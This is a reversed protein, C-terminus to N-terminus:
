KKRALFAAFASRAEDSQLLDRFHSSEAEIQKMVSDLHGRMLGRTVAVTTPPSPPLQALTHDQQEYSGPHRAGGESTTM